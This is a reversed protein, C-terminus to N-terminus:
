EGGPAPSQQAEGGPRGPTLPLAPSWGTGSPPRDDVFGAPQKHVRAPQGLEAKPSRAPSLPASPRSLLAVLIIARRDARDRASGHPREGPRVTDCARRHPNTFRPGRREATTPSSSPPCPITVLRRCCYHGGYGATSPRSLRTLPCSMLESF